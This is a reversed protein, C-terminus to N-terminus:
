NSLQANHLTAALRRYQECSAPPMQAAGVVKHRLGADLSELWGDPGPSAVADERPQEAGIRPGASHRQSLSTSLASAVDHSHLPRAKEAPFADPNHRSADSLPLPTLSEVRRSSEAMECSALEAARRRADDVRSM